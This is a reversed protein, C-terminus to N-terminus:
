RISLIYQEFDDATIGMEDLLQAAAYANDYVLDELATKNTSSYRPTYSSPSYFRSDYYGDDDGAKRSVPLTTVDLQCLRELLYAAFTVDLYEASSHAHYYGVSLNTCEPVIDTYNATDTFTGGTDLKYTHDKTSLQAALANGFDDSACRSGQHTIVSTTGRRDLAIAYDIGDLLEPTKTAIYRSGIGGVEEAAHFIYLGPIDRLIMERMIWVGVTCDAGLCSSDASSSLSLLGAGYVLKQTGDKSHVTDTHSSWLIRPKTDDHNLITIIRNGAEDIRVGNFCDIYRANFRKETDSGAPRCYTHMKLLDQIAEKDLHKLSDKPFAARPKVAGATSTTKTVPKIPTVNNHKRTVTNDKNTTTTTTTTNTSSM